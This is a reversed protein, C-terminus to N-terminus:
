DDFDLASWPVNAVVIHPQITKDYILVFCQPGFCDVYKGKVKGGETLITVDDGRKLALLRNFHADIENEPASFQKEVAHHFPNTDQEPQQQQPAETAQTDLIEDAM